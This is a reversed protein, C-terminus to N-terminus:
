TYFITGSLESDRLSVYDENTIIYHDILNVGIALLTERIFKTAELDSPSPLASGSPHNHAIFATKANHRLALDVIKRVPLDTANLSGRQM